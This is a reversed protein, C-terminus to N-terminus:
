RCQDPSDSWTVDTEMWAVTPHRTSGTDDYSVVWWQHNSSSPQFSEDGTPGKMYMPLNADTSNENDKPIMVWKTGDHRLVRGGREFVPRNNHLEGVRREYEGEYPETRTSLPRASLYISPLGASCPVLIIAGLTARTVARPM